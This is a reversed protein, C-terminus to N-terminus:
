LLFHVIYINFPYSTIDYLVSMTIYQAKKANSTVRRTM